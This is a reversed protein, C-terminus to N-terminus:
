DFICDDVSMKSDSAAESISCTAEFCSFVNNKAMKDFNLTKDNKPLKSDSAAEFISCTVEFCSFVNNKAM